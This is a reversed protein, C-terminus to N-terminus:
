SRVKPEDNILQANEIVEKLLQDRKAVESILAFLQAPSSKLDTTGYIRSKLSGRQDESCLISAADYYLAM